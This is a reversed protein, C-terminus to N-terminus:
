GDADGIGDGHAAEVAARITARDPHRDLLRSAAVFAAGSVFLDQLGVRPDDISSHRLRRAGEAARRVIASREAPEAAAFHEEWRREANSELGDLIREADPAFARTPDRGQFARPRLRLQGLLDILSGPSAFTRRLLLALDADLLGPLASLALDIVVANEPPPLHYETVPTGALDFVPVGADSSVILTLPWSRDLAVRWLHALFDASAPDHMLHHVDDIVLHFARGGGRCLVDVGHVVRKLLPDFAADASALSRIRRAAAGTGVLQFANTVMSVQAAAAAGEVLAKGGRVLRRKMRQSRELAAFAADLADTHAAVASGEVANRLARDRLRLGWWLFPPPQRSVVQKVGANLDVMLDALTVGQPWYGRSAGALALFTSALAHTKGCGPHGRLLLVQPGATSPHPELPIPM